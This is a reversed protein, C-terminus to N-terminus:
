DCLPFDPLPLPRPRPLQALRPFPHPRGGLGVCKCGGLEAKYNSLSWVKARLGDDYIWLMYLCLWMLIWTCTRDPKNSQEKRYQVLAWLRLLSVTAEHPISGILQDDWAKFPLIAIKQRVVRLLNMLSSKLGGSLDHQQTIESSHGCPSKEVEGHFWIM